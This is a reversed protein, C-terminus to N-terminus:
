LAPAKEKRLFMRQIHRPVILSPLVFVVFAFLADGLPMILAETLLAELPSEANSFVSFFFGQICTFVCAFLFTMLPLTYFRDAFLYDKLPYILSSSLVLFIGILGFRSEFSFIDLFLGLIFASILSKRLTQRYFTM